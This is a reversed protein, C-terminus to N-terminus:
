TRRFDSLSHFPQKVTKRTFGDETLLDHLYNLHFSFDFVLAAM